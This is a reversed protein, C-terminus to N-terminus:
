VSRIYLMMSKMSLKFSQVVIVLARTCERREGGSRQCDCGTGLVGLFVM